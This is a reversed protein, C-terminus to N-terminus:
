QFILITGARIVFGTFGNFEVLCKEGSTPKGMYVVQDDRCYQLTFPFNFSQTSDRENETTDYIIVLINIANFNFRFLLSVPFFIKSSSLLCVLSCCSLQHQRLSQCM